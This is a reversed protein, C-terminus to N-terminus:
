LFGPWGQSGRPVIIKTDEDQALYELIDTCDVVHGNGFSVSKSVNMGNAKAEMSFGMAQTGSQSIYGFNGTEGYYQQNNQRLGVKPHFIGMGNPGILPTGSEEAMKILRDELEAGEPAGTESFGATFFHIGGVKKAVADKMVFPTIKEPVAVIVYDVDEPIDLLSAVCPFGLEQAGPWENKDINVSYVKGGILSGANKLWNYDNLQKAGVVAVVKPHFMRDLKEKLNEM